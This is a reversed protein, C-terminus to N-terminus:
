ADAKGGRRLLALWRYPAHMLKSFPFLVFLAYVCVLHLLLLSPMWMSHRLLLLALGTVAVVNLAALLWLDFARM